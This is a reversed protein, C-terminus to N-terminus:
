DDPRLLLGTNEIRTDLRTNAPVLRLRGTLRAAGDISELEQLVYRTTYVACVVYRNQGDHVVLHSTSRRVSMYSSSWSAAMAFVLMLVVYTRTSVPIGPTGTDSKGRGTRVSRRRLAEYVIAIALMAAFLLLLVKWDTSWSFLWWTLPVGVATGIDWAFNPDVQPPAKRALTKITEMLALGVVVRITSSFVSSIGIEVLSAPVGYAHAAGISSLYAIAYGATPAGAILVSESVGLRDFWSDRHRRLRGGHPAGGSSSKRDKLHQRGGIAVRM